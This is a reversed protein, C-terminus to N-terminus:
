VLLDVERLWKIAEDENNFIRAKMKPSTLSLFFNGMMKSFKSELVLAGATIGRIGHESGLFDRAAKNMQAVGYDRVLMPYAINETYELRIQVIEKAMELNITCPKYAGHLIGDKIEITIFETELKPKDKLRM